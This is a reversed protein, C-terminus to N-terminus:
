FRRSRILLFVVIVINAVERLNKWNAISVHCIPYRFGSFKWSCHTNERKECVFIWSNGSFFAHHRKSLAIDPIDSYKRSRPLLASTANATGSLQLLYNFNEVQEYLTILRFNNVPLPSLINLHGSQVLDQRIQSFMTRWMPFWRSM